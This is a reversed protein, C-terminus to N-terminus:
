FFRLYLYVIAGLLVLLVITTFWSAFQKGWTKRLVYRATAISLTPTGVINLYGILMRMSNQGSDSGFGMGALLFLFVFGGVVLIGVSGFLGLVRHRISCRNSQRNDPPLM